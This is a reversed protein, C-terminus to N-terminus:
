EYSGSNNAGCSYGENFWYEKLHGLTYGTRKDTVVRQCLACVGPPLEEPEDAACGENCDSCLGLKM